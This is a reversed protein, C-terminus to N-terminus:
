NLATELILQLPALFLVDAGRVIKVLDGSKERGQNRSPFYKNILEGVVARDDPIRSECRYILSSNTSDTSAASFYGNLAGIIHDKIENFIPSTKSM